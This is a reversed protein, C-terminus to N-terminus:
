EDEQTRQIKEVALEQHFLTGIQATQVGLLLSADQAKDGKYVKPVLMSREDNTEREVAIVIFAEGNKASSLASRLTSMYQEHSNPTYDDDPPSSVESTDELEAELEDTDGAESDSDPLRKLVERLMKRTEDDMTADKTVPEFHDEYAWTDGQENYSWHTHDWEIYVMRYKGIPDYRQGRIWGEAGARALQYVGTRDGRLRVRKSDPYEGAETLPLRFPEVDTM